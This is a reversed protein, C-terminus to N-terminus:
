SSVPPPSSEMLRKFQRMGEEFDERDVEYYREYFWRPVRPAKKRTLFLVDEVQRAFVLLRETSGLSRGGIVAECSSYVLQCLRNREAAISFQERCTEFGLMLLGLSPVFWRLVLDVLTFSGVAGLIVGLSVWSATLFVALYAYRRRIRQGWSLNQYEKVLVNFPYSLNPMEYWDRLSQESGRYQRVLQRVDEARLPDGAVVANWPMRFQQVYFMEQLVAAMQLKRDVYRQLLSAYVFAWIVGVVTGPLASLHIVPALVGAIAVAMSILTRFTAVRQVRAHVVTVARLVFAESSEIAHRILPEGAAM